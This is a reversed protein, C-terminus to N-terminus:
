LCLHYTKFISSSFDNILGLDIPEINKQRIGGTSIMLWSLLWCSDKVFDKMRTWFAISCSSENTFIQNIVSQNPWHNAEAVVMSPAVRATRLYAVLSYRSFRM